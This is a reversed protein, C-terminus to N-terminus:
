LKSLGCSQAWVLMCPLLVGTVTHMAGNYTTFGVFNARKHLRCVWCVSCLLLILMIVSIM